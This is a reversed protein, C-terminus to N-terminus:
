NVVGLKIQQKAKRVHGGDMLGCDLVALPPERLVGTANAQQPWRLARSTEIKGSGLIGVGTIAQLHSNEMLEPAPVLVV